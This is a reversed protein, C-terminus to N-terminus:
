GDSTVEKFDLEHNAPKMLNKCTIKFLDGNAFGDNISLFM